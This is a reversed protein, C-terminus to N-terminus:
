TGAMPFPKPEVPKLRLPGNGRTLQYVTGPQSEIHFKLHFREILLSQLM